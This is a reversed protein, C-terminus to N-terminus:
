ILCEREATQQSHDHRTGTFACFLVIENNQFFFTDILNM